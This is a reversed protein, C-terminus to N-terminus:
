QFPNTSSATASVRFGKVDLSKAYAGFDPNTFDCNSDRGLELGMKRKILGYAGDDWVLVVFPIKARVATELEQSNM